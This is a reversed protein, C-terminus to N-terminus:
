EGISEICCRAFYEAVRKYWSIAILFPNVSSANISCSQLKQDNSCYFLLFVYCSELLVKPPKLAISPVLLLELDLVLNFGRLTKFDSLTIKFLSWIWRWRSLGSKSTNFRTSQIQYFIKCTRFDTHYPSTFLTKLTLLGRRFM